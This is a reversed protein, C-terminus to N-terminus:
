LRHVERRITSACDELRRTLIEISEVACTAASEPPQPSDPQPEHGILRAVRNCLDGETDMLTSLVNQLRHTLADLKDFAGARDAPATATNQQLRAMERATQASPPVILNRDYM